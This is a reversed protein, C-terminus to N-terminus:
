RGKAEVRRRAANYHSWRYLAKSLIKQVKNANAIEDLLSNGSPLLESSSVNNKLLKALRIVENVQSLLEKGIAKQADQVDFGWSQLRAEVDLESEEITLKIGKPRRNPILLSM